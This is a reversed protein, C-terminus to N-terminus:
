LRPTEPAAASISSRPIGLYADDSVSYKLIATGILAAVLAAIAPWQWRARSRQRTALLIGVVLLGTVFGGLHAQWAINRYFFPLVANIGLLVLLGTESLRLRRALGLLAAFLGFVAGSAGVTGTLWTSDIMELRTLPPTAMVLYMVSGGLASTLYLALFRWRGLVPELFQGVQWLAFMNFLIHMPSNPAHLFTATMLRWPEQRGFFPTFDFRDTIGPLVWQLVYAAVCTGILAYTVTPREDGAMVRGIGGRTAPATRRAEKLCDVCHFGVPAPRQCDPCAPRGCRQCRLYTVRDAHRPCTPPADTPWEPNPQVM